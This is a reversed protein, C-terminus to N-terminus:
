RSERIKTTWTLDRISRGMEVGMRNGNGLGGEEGQGRGSQLMSCPSKFSFKLFTKVNMRQKINFGECCPFVGRTHYVGIM